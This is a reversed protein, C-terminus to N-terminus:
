MCLLLVNSKRPKLLKLQRKYWFFHKIGQHGSALLCLLIIRFTFGHFVVFAEKILVRLKMEKSFLWWIFFKVLTCIVRYHYWTLIVDSCLGLWTQWVYLVFGNRTYMRPYNDNSHKRLVALDLHIFLELYWLCQWIDLFFDNIAYRGSSKWVYNYPTQLTCPWKTPM